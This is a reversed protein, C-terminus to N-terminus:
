FFHRIIYQQITDVPDIHLLIDDLLEDWNDQNENVLKQLQAKLTQNFREGLGNSQPYYASTIKHKFGTLEKLLDM